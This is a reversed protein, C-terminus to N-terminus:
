SQAGSVKSLGQQVTDLCKRVPRLTSQVITASQHLVKDYLCQFRRDVHLIFRSLLCLVICFCFFLFFFSLFCVSVAVVVKFPTADKMLYRAEQM